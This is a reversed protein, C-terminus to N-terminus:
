RLAHPFDRERLGEARERERGKRARRGGEGERGCRPVSKGAGAEADRKERAGLTAAVTATTKLGKVPVGGPRWM